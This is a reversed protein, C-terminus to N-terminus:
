CDPLLRASQPACASAQPTGPNSTIGPRAQLPFRQVLQLPVGPAPERFVAIEESALPQALAASFHLRARHLLAVPDHPEVDSLTMHFRWHEFVHRYGWRRVLARQLETGQNAGRRDPCRWPDLCLVADDALRRLPHWAQLADVPRLALFGGLWDVQLSPMEFRPTRKALDAVAQLFQSDTCDPKLWIPAKLTAHFGYRWAQACENPPRGADLQEPDRGLWRCGAEWLPHQRPPVWYVAWRPRSTLQSADTLFNDGAVFISSAM